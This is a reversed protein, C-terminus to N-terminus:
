GKPIDGMLDRCVGSSSDEEAQSPIAQSFGVKKAIKLAEVLIDYESNYPSHNKYDRLLRLLLQAEAKKSVLYPELCELVKLLDAHKRISVVFYAHPRLKSPRYDLYVVVSHSVIEALLESAYNIIRADGCVIRIHKEYAFKGNKRKTRYFGITGEGDLIGALWGTKATDM